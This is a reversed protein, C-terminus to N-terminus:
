MQRFCYYPSVTNQQRSVCFWSFFHNIRRSLCCSYCICFTTCTYVHHRVRYTQANLTLHFKISVLVFVWKGSRFGSRKKEDDTRGFVSRVEKTFMQRKNYAKGQNTLSISHTTDLAVIYDYHVPCCEIGFGNSHRNQKDACNIRINMLFQEHCLIINARLYMNNSKSKM